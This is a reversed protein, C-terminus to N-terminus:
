FLCCVFHFYSMCMQDDISTALELLCQGLRSVRVPCAWCWSRQFFESCALGCTQSLSLCPVANCFPSSAAVRLCVLCSARCDLAQLPIPTYLWLTLIAHSVQVFFRAVATAPGSTNAQSINVRFIHKSLVKIYEQHNKHNQRRQRTM